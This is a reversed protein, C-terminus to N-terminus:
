FRGTLVLGPQRPDVVPSLRVRATDESAKKKRIIGVALLAVGVPVLVGATVGGAIALTNGTRGRDFQDRRGNFDDDELESLDNAGAGMVMGATAIGVGVGGLATVVAGSIILNNAAKAEGRRSGETARRRAERDATDIKRQITELKEDVRTREFEREPTSTYIEPLLKRYQELLIKAQNLERTDADVDFAKEHATAINFILDAKAESYEPVAPVLGYAETWLEIAGAYDATEYRSAGRAFLDKARAVDAEVAASATDTDSEDGSEAPESAFSSLPAAAVVLAIVAALGRAPIPRARV